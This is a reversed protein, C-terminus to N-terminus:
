RNPILTRRGEENIKIKLLTQASFKLYTANKSKKSFKKKPFKFIIHIHIKPLFFIKFIRDVRM